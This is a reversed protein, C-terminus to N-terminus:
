IMIKGSSLTTIATPAVLETFKEQHSIVIFTTGNKNMEFIANAFLKQAAADAGSDPEDLVALKPKLMLLHLFLLRKKEGGSFGVNISRSLWNEPINLQERARALDKFFEGASLEHGSAAAHASLSHKLFSTVTLGPIEPVIQAGLFIGALARETTSLKTIDKGDFIIKGSDVNYNPAGAITQVLTTKGSGNAGRILHRTGADIDLNVDHLLEKGAHSMTLNKISLIPKNKM